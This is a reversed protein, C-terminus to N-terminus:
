HSLMNCTSVCQIFVSVGTLYKSGRLEMSSGWTTRADSCGKFVLISGPILTQQDDGFFDELSEINNSFSEKIDLWEVQM